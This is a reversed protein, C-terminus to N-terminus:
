ANDEYLFQAGYSEHPTDGGFRSRDTYYRTVFNEYARIPSPGSATVWDSGTRSLKVMWRDKRSRYSITLDWTDKPLGQCLIKGNLADFEWTMRSRRKLLDVNLALDLLEESSLQSMEFKRDSEPMERPPRRTDKIRLRRLEKRRREKREQIKKSSKESAERVALKGEKSDLWEEIKKVAKDAERQEEETLELDSM